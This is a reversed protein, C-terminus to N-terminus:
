LREFLNNGVDGVRKRAIKVNEEDIEFGIYNRKNKKAVV